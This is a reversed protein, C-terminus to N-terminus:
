VAFTIVAAKCAPWATRITTANLSITCLTRNGPLRFIAPFDMIGSGPCEFDQTSGSAMDKIHLIPIRGPYKNLLAVPDAGGKKAWYVDLECKVM